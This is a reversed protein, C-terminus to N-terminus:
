PKVKYLFLVTSAAFMGFMALGMTMALDMTREEDTQYSVNTNRCSTRQFRKIDGAIEGLPNGGV